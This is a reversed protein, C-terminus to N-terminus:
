APFALHVDFWGKQTRNCRENTREDSTSSRQQGGDIGLAVLIAQLANRTLDGLSLHDVRVEDRVSRPQKELSLDTVLDLQAASFLLEDPKDVSHPEKGWSLDDGLSLRHDPGNDLDPQLWADFGPLERFRRQGFTRKGIREEREGQGAPSVQILNCWVTAQCM